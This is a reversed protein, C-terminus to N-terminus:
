RSRQRNRDILHLLDMAFLVHRVMKSGDVMVTHPHQLDLPLFALATV